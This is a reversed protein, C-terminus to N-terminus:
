NTSKKTKTSSKAKPKTEEEVEGLVTIMNVNLSKAKRIQEDSLNVIDGPVCDKNSASIHFPINVLVKKM